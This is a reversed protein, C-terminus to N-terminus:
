VSTVLIVLPYLYDTWVRIDQLFIRGGRKNQLSMLKEAHTREEKSQEQFFKAFNPLSKDDRDFYYAQFGVFISFLLCRKTELNMVCVARHASPLFPVRQMNKGYLSLCLLCLAGPKDTQQHGGRLGPPLKTPNAFENRYLNYYHSFSHVCKWSVTIWTYDSFVQCVVGLLLGLCTCQIYPNGFSLVEAFMCVLSNVFLQWGGSLLDTWLLLLSMGGENVRTTRDMCNM